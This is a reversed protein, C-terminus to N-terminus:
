RGNLHTRRSARKRRRSQFLRSLSLWAIFLDNALNRTNTRSASHTTHLTEAGCCFFGAAVSSPKGAHVFFARARRSGALLRIKKTLSYPALPSPMTFEVLAM